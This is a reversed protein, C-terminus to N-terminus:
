WIPTGFGDYVSQKAICANRPDAASQQQYQLAAKRDVIRTVHQNGVDYFYLSTFPYATKETPNLVAQESVQLQPWLVDGQMSRDNYAFAFVGTLDWDTEFVIGPGIWPCYGDLLISTGKPPNVIAQQIQSLVVQQSRSSKIWFSAITQDIWCACGCCLSILVCFLVKGPNGRGLALSFLGALGAILLSVAVSAAVGVRNNIGPGFGFTTWFYAYSLGTVVFAALTLAFVGAAHFQLQPATIVLKALYLAIILAIVLSLIFASSDFYRQWIAGLVHPLRIGYAGFNLEAASPFANKIWPERISSARSTVLFKFWLILIILPLSRLYYLWWEWMRRRPAQARRRLQIHKLGMIIPNLLFLPLFAEYALGSLCLCLVSLIAWGWGANAQLERADSYVALFYAAMSVTIQTTALWLRVTSYHPLLGYILVIALAAVRDELLQHLALYFIWLSLFIVVTIAVHYGIPNLGFMRYLIADYIAQVPRPFTDNETTFTRVLGSLSQDPAFRFSKLFAWDDSYFGLRTLSLVSALLTVVALFVCDEM